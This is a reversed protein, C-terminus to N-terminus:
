KRNSEFDSRSIPELSNIEEINKNKSKSYSINNKKAINVPSTIYKGLILDGKKDDANCCNCQAGM